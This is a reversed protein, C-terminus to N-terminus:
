HLLIGSSLKKSRKHTSKEEIYDMKIDDEIAQLSEQRRLRYEKVENM